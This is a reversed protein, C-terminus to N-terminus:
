PRMGEPPTAAPVRLAALALGRAGCRGGCYLRPPESSGLVEIRAWGTLLPDSEDLDAALLGCAPESCDEALPSWTLRPAIAAAPGLSQKRKGPM